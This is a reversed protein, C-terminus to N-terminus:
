KECKAKCEMSSLELKRVKHELDDIRINYNEIKVSIAALEVEIKNQSGMLSKLFFANVTLGLTIFGGVITIVAEISM